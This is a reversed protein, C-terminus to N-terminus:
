RPNRTLVADVEDRSPWSTPLRGAEAGFRFLDYAGVCCTDDMDVMLVTLPSQAQNSMAAYAAQQITTTM